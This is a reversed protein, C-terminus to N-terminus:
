LWKKLFKQKLSRIGCERLLLHEINTQIIFNRVAGYWWFAKWEYGDCSIFSDCVFSTKKELMRYYGNVALIKASGDFSLINHVRIIFITGNSTGFTWRFKVKTISITTSFINMRYSCFNLNAMWHFNKEHISRQLRLNLTM